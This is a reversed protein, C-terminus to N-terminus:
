SPPPPSRSPSPPSGSCLMPPSRTKAAVDAYGVSEAALVRDRDTVLVVAGALEGRDIFPRLVHALGAGGAPPPDAARSPATVTALLTLALPLGFRTPRAPTM